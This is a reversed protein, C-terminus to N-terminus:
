PVGRPREMLALLADDSMRRWDDPVPWVAISDRRPVLALSPLSVTRQAACSLASAALLALTLAYASRIM